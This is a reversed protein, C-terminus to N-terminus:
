EKPKVTIVTAGPIRAGNIVDQVGARRAFPKLKTMNWKALVVKIEEYEPLRECQRRHM